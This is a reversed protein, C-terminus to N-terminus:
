FNVERSAEVSLLLCSSCNLHLLAQRRSGYQLQRCNGFAFFLLFTYYVGEGRGMSFSNVTGLPWTNLLIFLTCVPRVYVDSRNKQRFCFPANKVFLCINAVFVCKTNSLICYKKYYLVCNYSGRLNNLVM